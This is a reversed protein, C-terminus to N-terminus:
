VIAQFDIQKDHDTASELWYFDLQGGSGAGTVYLWQISEKRDGSVLRGPLPDKDAAGVLLSGQGVAM